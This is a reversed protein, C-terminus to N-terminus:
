KKCQEPCNKRMWDPPLLEKYGVWPKSAQWAANREFPNSYPLYNTVKNGGIRRVLISMLKEPGYNVFANVPWGPVNSAKLTSFWDIDLPGYATNLPEADPHDSNFDHLIYMTGPLDLNALHAAVFTGYEEEIALVERLERCQEPTLPRLGLPDTRNIPNNQTYGYFNVGSVFRTPDESIFRGVQPDYYRARSYQLGTEPDYDRAAYRYANVFSGSLATTNGFADYTYSNSLAGAPSSLSTVSGVGDQEYLASAGSRLQALPEDIGKGQAYRALLSGAADVEEIANVSDYLYNTTTTTSGQTFAKRIRRGLPDYKFTVTGGSGPLTV